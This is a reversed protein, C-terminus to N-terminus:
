MGQWLKNYIYVAVYGQCLSEGEFSNHRPKALQLLRDQRDLKERRQPKM